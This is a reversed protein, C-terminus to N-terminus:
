GDKEEKNQKIYYELSKQIFTDVKTKNTKSEYLMTIFCLVTEEEKDEEICLIYNKCEETISKLAIEVEEQNNMDISDIIKDIQKIVISGHKEFIKESIFSSIDNGAINNIYDSEANNEKLAFAENLLYKLYNNEGFAVLFHKEIGKIASAINNKTPKEKADVFKLVADKLDDGIFKDINAVGLDDQYKDVIKLFIESIDHLSYDVFSGYKEYLWKEGKLQILNIANVFDMANEKALELLKYLDDINNEKMLNKIKTPTLGGKLLFAIIYFENIKSKDYEKTGNKNKINDPKIIGYKNLESLQFRNIGTLKCIDKVQLTEM